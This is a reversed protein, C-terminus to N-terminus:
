RPTKIGLAELAATSEEIYISAWEESTHVEGNEARWLLMLGAPSLGGQARATQLYSLDMM